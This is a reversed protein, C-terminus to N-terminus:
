PSGSGQTRPRQRTRSGEQAVQLDQRTPQGVSRRRRSAVDKARDPLETGVQVGGGKSGFSPDEHDGSLTERRQLRRGGRSDEKHHKRRSIRPAEGNKSFFDKEIPHRMGIGKAAAKTAIRRMGLHTNSKKNRQQGPQLDKRRGAMPKTEQPGKRNDLQFHPIEMPRKRPSKDWRFPPDERPSKSPSRLWDLRILSALSWPKEEEKQLPPSPPCPPFPPTSPTDGGFEDGREVGKEGEERREEEETIEIVKEEPSDVQQTETRKGLWEELTDKKNSQGRVLSHLGSRGRKKRPSGEEQISPSLRQILPIELKEEGPEGHGGAERPIGAPRVLLELQSHQSGPGGMTPRRPVEHDRASAKDRSPRVLPLLMAGPDEGARLRQGDIRQDVDLSGGMVVPLSGRPRSRDVGHKFRKFFQPMRTFSGVLSVFLPM